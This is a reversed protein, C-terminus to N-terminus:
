QINSEASSFLDVTKLQDGMEIVQITENMENKAEGDGIYQDFYEPTGLTAYDNDYGWCKVSDNNLVACSYDYSGSIEIPYLGEGLDPSRRTAPTENLGKGWSDQIDLGAQGSDNDGWCKLTHDALLACTHDDGLLVDIVAATSAFEIEALNDGMTNDSGNSLKGDGNNDFDGTFKFGTNEGCENSGSDLHTVQVIFDMDHAHCYLSSPYGEGIDLQGNSNDDQGVHLQTGGHACSESNTELAELRYHNTREPSNCYVTSSNPTENNGVISDGTGLGIEGDRNTGWCKLADNDLIACTHRYYAFVKKVSRGTGLDVFALHNGMEDAEDGRDNFDGYGLQASGNDGWCKIQDNSLLACTVDYGAMVQKVKYPQENADTGLDVFPLKDGLENLNDGRKETDGYGLRGSSASGWCKLRGNNLVVCAHSNGLSLQEVTLDEGFDMVPLNNGLEEAQDGTYNSDDLSPDNRGIYNNSGWCRVQQDDYLACGFNENTEAHLVAKDGLQATPIGAGIEQADDSITEDLGNAFSYSDGYGWCKFIGDRTRICNTYASSEMSVIYAEAPPKDKDDGGCASLIIFSLLSILYKFVQM